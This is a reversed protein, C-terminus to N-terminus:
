RHIISNACYYVVRAIGGRLTRFILFASRNVGQNLTRVIFLMFRLKSGALFARLMASRPTDNSRALSRRLKIKLRRFDTFIHALGVWLAAEHRKTPQIRPQM